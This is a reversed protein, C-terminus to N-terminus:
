LMDDPDFGTSFYKNASPVLLILASVLYAAGWLVCPQWDSFFYLYLVYDVHIFGWGLYVWRAWNKEEFMLIGCVISIIANFYLMAVQVPVPVGLQEMAAQAEPQKLDSFSTFLFYCGSLILGLCVLTIFFPRSKIM